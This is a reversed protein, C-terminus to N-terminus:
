GKETESPLDGFCKTGHFVRFDIPGWLGAITKERHVTCVKGLLGELSPSKTSDPLAHSITLSPKKINLKETPLLKFM